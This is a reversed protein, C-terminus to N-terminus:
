LKREKIEISRKNEFDEDFSEIPIGSKTDYCFFGMNSRDLAFRNQSM